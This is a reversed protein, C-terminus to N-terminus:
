RAPEKSAAEAEVPYVADRPHVPGVFLRKTEGQGLRSSKARPKSRALSIAGVVAVILLLTALEFPVLAQTFLLRGVAGSSGHGAPAPPLLLPPATLVMLGLAVASGLSMLGAAIWRVSGAPRNRSNRAHGDPGLLMIVFVFLVVVAGAYVMLQIAALFQARLLLFLGAIGMITALLGVASRIPNRSLVTGLAGVLSLLACVVFFVNGATM